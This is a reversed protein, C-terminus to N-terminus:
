IFLNCKTLTVSRPDDDIFHLTLKYDKKDINELSYHSYDKFFNCSFLGSYENNEELQMQKTIYDKIKNLDVIDNSYYFNDYSVVYLNQMIM